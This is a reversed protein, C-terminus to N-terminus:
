EAKFNVLEHIAMGKSILKDNKYLKGNSLWKYEDAMIFNLPMVKNFGPIYRILREVVSYIKKESELLVACDMNLIINKGPISIFDDEITCRDTKEGNLWLWQQKEKERLEIWVMINEESVFRGWRLEDMPIKWPPLTLILQEVYGRGELVKDNIKLQVKSAPQFCKWDLYGKESDFIRSQITEALSEWIGSVGFILDSWIVVKEKLQPFQVKRFRSKLNVGSVANYILWSTYSASLGRWTLKAAYFIMAEGNEGIFDLFWKNLHFDSGLADKKEENSM